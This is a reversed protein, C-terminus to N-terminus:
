HVGQELDLNLALVNVTPDGLLNLSTHRKVLGRVTSPDLQRLRAVRAVQYDAAAPSIHPDLGSGSATVLDSPIIQTNGPDVAQLAQIRAEAAKRLDPNSPALNSGGSAMANTPTEATASLRGWFCRPDETARGILRSGLVQGDRLILSGNAKSPFLAQGLGTMALPYILGTLIALSGFTVLAPRVLSSTATSM